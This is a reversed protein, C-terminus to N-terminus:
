KAIGYVRVTGSTINGSSFMLRIANVATTQPYSGGSLYHARAPEATLYYAHGTIYKFLSGSLPDFLRINGNIGMTNSVHAASQYTLWIASSSGSDEVGVGGGAVMGHATYGSSVFTSGGDTSVRFWFDVNNTAPKVNVFEIVYEDYTSSLCSTFDLSASTSATHQELLMLAGSSSGVPVSFAGTGDLYKTADAPLTPVLQVATGIKVDASGAGLVPLNVTLSGATHTVTGTGPVGGDVANGAADSVLLHTSTLTGKTMLFQSGDGSRALVRVQDYDIGGRELPQAASGKFLVTGMVGFNTGTLTYAGALTVASTGTVIRYLCALSDPNTSQSAVASGGSGAFTVAADASPFGILLDGDHTPTLSGSTQTGSTSYSLTAVTNTTDVPSVAAIGGWETVNANAFYGNNDSWAVTITDSGASGSIAYFVIQKFWSNGTAAFTAIATSYTNGLTDSITPTTGDHWNVAVVILSGSVIANDPTVALSTLHTGGGYYTKSQKYTIAM